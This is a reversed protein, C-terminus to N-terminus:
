ISQNDEHLNVMKKKDTKHEFWDHVQFQIWAAALVNLTSAQKRGKKTGHLLETSVKLPDPGRHVDQQTQKADGPQINRGFPTETSGMAPKALDTWSGDPLRMRCAPQVPSKKSKAAPTYLNKDHLEKTQKFRELLGQEPHLLTIILDIGHYIM